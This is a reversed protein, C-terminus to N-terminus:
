LRPAWQSLIADLCAELEVQLNLLGLYASSVNNEKAQVTEPLSIKSIFKSYPDLMVSAPYYRGGGLWSDDGHLRWGYYLNRLDLGAIEM